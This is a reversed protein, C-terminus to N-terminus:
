GELKIFKEVRKIMNESLNKVLNIQKETLKPNDWDWEKPITKGDGLLQFLTEDYRPDNMMDNYLFLVPTGLAISPLCAHLRDSIVLKANYYIELLKMAKKHKEKHNLSLNNDIGHSIIKASNRINLPILKEYLFLERHDADVVIIDNRLPPNFFGLNKPNLTLTLCCSHYANIGANKFLNLTHLDRTGVPSYKQLYKITKETLLRNGHHATEKLFRYEYNEYLNLSENLHFSIFFPKLNSEENFDLISQRGDFWGNEIIKIKSNKNILSLKDIKEGRYDYIETQNDRNIYFDPTNNPTPIFRLAAISQIDDGLNCSNPYCLVGFKVDGFDRGSIKLPKQGLRQALETFSSWNSGLIGKGCMSLLFVDIIASEIQKPSRDWVNKEIYFINKISEVNNAGFITSKDNRVNKNKTQAYKLRFAEYIKNDDACLLFTQNPYNYWIKDIEEMFYNYHSKNRYKSVSKLQESSYTSWDEFAYEDSNQGMRIHLGITNQFNFLNKYNDIKNQIYAVPKINERLWKCEEHWSTCPDNIVTASIVYIDNNSTYKVPKSFSNINCKETPPNNSIIEINRRYETSIVFLNEDIFHDSFKSEYHIDPIWVIILNRNQKKSIVAASAIARLKNGLGNKAEIIFKPLNRRNYIELLTKRSKNKTCEWPFGNKELINRMADINCKEIIKSNPINKELDLPTLSDLLFESKKLNNNEKKSSFKNVYITKEKKNDWICDCNKSIYMNEIIKLELDNFSSRRKDSHPIHKITDIDIDLKKMNENQLREYLDTDDWGYTRIYENYGGVNEFQCSPLFVVGNLHTENSNRANKWNGSYFFLDTSKLPHKEFFNSEIITDADVKLLLPNTVYQFALNLALTLIWNGTNDVRIINIKKNQFNNKTLEKAIKKTSNWDVIIIQTIEPLNLWSELSKVLSEFRNMVGVILSVNENM